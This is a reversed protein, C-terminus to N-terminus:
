VVRPTMVLPVTMSTLTLSSPNTVCPPFTMQPSHKSQSKGKQWHLGQTKCSSFSIHDQTEPLYAWTVFLGSFSPQMLATNSTYCFGSVNSISSHRRTCGPVASIHFVTTLPMMKSIMFCASKFVTPTKDECRSGFSVLVHPDSISNIKLYFTWSNRKPKNNKMLPETNPSCSFYQQVTIADCCYRQIYVTNQSVKCRDNLYNLHWLTIM